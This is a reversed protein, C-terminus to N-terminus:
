FRKLLNFFLRSERDNESNVRQTLPSDLEIYGSYNQALNFRVGVGASALSDVGSEGVAPSENLVKGLDYFTYFQYSQIYGNEPYGSYRFEVEGAMGKDGAIEGSDYARGFAGGGLAFEQSALLPGGSAQGSASLLMSFNGFLEQTRSATLNTRLFDHEGNARSRGVGDSTSNLIGMGKAVELDFQNVGKLDDAFDVHAGGRAFRVRDEAVKVGALKSETNLATMGGLIDFNWRRGRLVPYSAELDFLRSTGKIDLNSIRGGPETGTLAVRGTVHAGDSGLQEEHTIDMFRLESFQTAALGRITTRDHIGFTNNFAGTLEGRYPGLFRSGRNDFSASGEFYDEEVSIILDGGGPTKGPKVFSRATVGPLDDILLLYRELENTNTPGTDNIKDAMKRILGNEDKYNGVIQVSSVHGEIARLHVVGDNIKQPPVIVRSFIYGDERYKRTMASAIAHLDAFSVKKGIYPAYIKSFDASKYAVADDLVISNLVFVKETSVGAAGEEMKPVVVTDELRSPAREKEQLGRTVIGPEASSPIQALATHAGAAMFAMLSLFSVVGKVGRLSNKDM